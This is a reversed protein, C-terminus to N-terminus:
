SWRRGLGALLKLTEEEPTSHPDLHEIQVRLRDVLRGVETHDGRAAAARLADRHLVESCPEALLGQSAADQAGRHDGADLRLTALAHAHDVITSIMQQTDAEAWAYDRPDVGLFPRGRVLGLARALRDPNPASGDPAPRTLRLLDHWDCTVDPHLRYGGDGVIALYPEGAPTVGLWRRARSVLANRTGTSVRAGPWMAEDVQHYTAGPNLALYAVLETLRRRRHPVLEDHAGRV